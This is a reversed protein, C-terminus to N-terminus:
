KVAPGEDCLSLGRFLFNHSHVLQRRYAVDLSIPLVPQVWEQSRECRCGLSNSDNVARLNSGDVRPLRPLMVYGGGTARQKCGQRYKARADLATRVDIDGLSLIRSDGVVCVKQHSCMMTRECLRTTLADRM